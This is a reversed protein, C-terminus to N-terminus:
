LWTLDERKRGDDTLVSFPWPIPPSTFKPLFGQCTGTSAKFQARICPSRMLQSGRLLLVGRDKWCVWGSLHLLVPRFITRGTDAGKALEGPQIDRKM